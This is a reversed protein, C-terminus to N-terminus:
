AATCEPYILVHINHTHTHTLPHQRQHRVRDVAQANIVARSMEALTRSFRGSDRPFVNEVQQVLKQTLVCVCVCVCVCRSYSSRPLFVCVCVGATRPDPYSCVCVCVGATRAEPYSCVCVCVCVGATRAEPYSCVCVCVCVCV